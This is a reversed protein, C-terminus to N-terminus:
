IRPPTRWRRCTPTRDTSTSSTRAGATATGPSDIPRRRGARRLAPPRPARDATRWRHCARAAHPLHGQQGGVHQPVRRGADGGRDQPRAGRVDHHEAPQQRAGGDPLHRPRRRCLRRHDRAAPGCRAGDRGPPVRRASAGLFREEAWNFCARLPTVLRGLNNEIGFIAAALHSACITDRGGLGIFYNKNHNAFGLVEHPVVHGINM